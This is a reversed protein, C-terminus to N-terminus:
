GHPRGEAKAIAAALARLDGLRIGFACDDHRKPDALMEDLVAYDLVRQGATLMGKAATVLRANAMVEELDDDTGAGVRILPWSLNGPHHISAALRGKRKGDAADVITKSVDGITWEGPTAKSVVSM